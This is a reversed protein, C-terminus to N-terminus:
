ECNEPRVFNGKEGVVTCAYDCRKNTNSGRGFSLRKWKSNKTKYHVSAYNVKIYSIDMCKTQGPLIEPGWVELNVGEMASIKIHLDSHGIACVTRFPDCGPFLPKTLNNTVCFEKQPPKVGNGWAISSFTVAGIILFVM